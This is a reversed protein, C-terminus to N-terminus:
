DRLDSKDIYDLKSNYKTINRPEIRNNSLKKLSEKEIYNKNFESVANNKNKRRKSLKLFTYVYVAALFAVIIVILLKM